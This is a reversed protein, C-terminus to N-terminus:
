TRTFPESSINALVDGLGYKGLPAQSLRRGNVIPESEWIGESTLTIDEGIGLTLAETPKALRATSSSAKNNRDLAHQVDDNSYKYTRPQRSFM